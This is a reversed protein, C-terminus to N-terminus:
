ETNTIKFPFTTEAGYEDRVVARGEYVGPDTLFLTFDMGVCGSCGDSYGPPTQDLVWYVTTDHGEPDSVRDLQVVFRDFSGSATVGAGGGSGQADTQGDTRLWWSTEMQPSENEVELELATSSAAGHEDIVRLQVDYVGTREPQFETSRERGSRRLVREGSPGVVDFQYQLDDRNPDTTRSADLEVTEGLTAPDPQVSFAIAPSENSESEEPSTETVVFACGSAFLMLMGAFLTERWM